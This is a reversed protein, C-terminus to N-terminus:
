SARKMRASKMAPGIGGCLALLIAQFRSSKSPETFPQNDMIVWWLDLQRVQDINAALQAGVLNSRWADLRPQGLVSQSADSMPSVRGSSPSIARSGHIGAQIEVTKKDDPNKFHGAFRPDVLDYLRKCFHQNSRPNLHLALISKNQPHATYKQNCLRCQWKENIEKYQQLTKRRPKTVLTSSLFKFYKDIKFLQDDGEGKAEASGNGDQCQNEGDM